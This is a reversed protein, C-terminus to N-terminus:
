IIDSAGAKDILYDNLANAINSNVRDTFESKVAYGDDLRDFTFNMLNDAILTNYPHRDLQCDAANRYGVTRHYEIM